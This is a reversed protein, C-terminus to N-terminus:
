LPIDSRSGSVNRRPRIFRRVKVGDPWPFEDSYISTYQSVPITLRFSKYMANPNYICQIKRVEYGVSTVLETIDTTVTDPDVRYVFLDRDAEPAGRFRGEGHQRRGTITKSRRTEKRRERRAARAPIHFEDADNAQNERAAAAHQSDDSPENAMSQSSRARALPAFRNYDNEKDRPLQAAATARPQTSKEHRSMAVRGRGNIVTHAVNTSCPVSAQRRTTTEPQPPMCQPIQVTDGSDDRTRAPAPTDPGRTTGKLVDAYPTVAELRTRIMLNDTTNRNVAEQLNTMINEMQRLRDVLSITNLEEPNWRPLKGLNQADVVFCPLKEATDLKNISSIIDQVHAEEISRMTSERRRPMEYGIVKGGCRQWLTQKAAAIDAAPFHGTVASHVNEVTANQLAYAVYALLPQVIIEAQSTTCDDPEDHQAINCSSDFSGFRRKIATEDSEYYQSPPSNGDM